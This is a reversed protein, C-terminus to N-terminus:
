RTPYLNEFGVGPQDAITWIGVMSGDAMIEYIILGIKGGLEYAASFANQNRMCIGSSTAGVNWVIRCTNESTATIEVTGGYESGNVNKGRVEYRGGIDQAAAVTGVTAMLMGLIVSRM